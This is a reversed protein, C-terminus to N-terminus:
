RHHDCICQHCNLKTIFKKICQQPVATITLKTGCVAACKTAWDSALRVGRWMKVVSMQFKNYSNKGFIASDKDKGWRLGFRFSKKSLQKKYGTKGGQRFINSIQTVKPKHSIVENELDHWPWFSRNAKGHARKVDLACSIGCWSSLECFEGERGFTMIITIVRCWWTLYLTMAM